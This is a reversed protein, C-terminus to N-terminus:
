NKFCKQKRLSGTQFLDTAQRSVSQHLLQPRSGEVKKHFYRLYYIQVCAPSVHYVCMHVAFHRPQGSTNLEGFRMKFGLTFLTKSFSSVSVLFM